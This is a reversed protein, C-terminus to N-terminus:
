YDESSGKFDEGSGSTRLPFIDELGELYLREGLPGEPMLLEVQTHEHNFACVVMDNSAFGSLTRLKLNAMVIVKGRM